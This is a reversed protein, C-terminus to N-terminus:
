HSVYNNVRWILTCVPFLEKIMNDILSFHWSQLSIFEKGDMEERKPQTKEMKRRFFFSGLGDSLSMLNFIGRRFLLYYCLCFIMCTKWLFFNTFICRFYIFYIFYLIYLPYTFNMNVHTKMSCQNFGSGPVFSPKKRTREVNRSARAKSQGSREPVVVYGSTASSEATSSLLIFRTAVYGNRTGGFHCLMTAGCIPQFELSTVLNTVVCCM